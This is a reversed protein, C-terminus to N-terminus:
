IHIKKQVFNEKFMYQFDCWVFKRNYNNWRLSKILFSNDLINNNIEFFLYTNRELLTM